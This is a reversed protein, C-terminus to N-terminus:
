ARVSNAFLHNGGDIGGILNSLIETVKAFVTQVSDLTQQDAWTVSVAGDVSASKYKNPVFDVSLVGASTAERFTAEYTANEIEIPVSDSPVLYDYVDFAASRPWERVQARMGVKTGSFMPRFKNDLWESAVLLKAAIFEDTWAASYEIERADFYARFGAVTGYYAPMKCGM